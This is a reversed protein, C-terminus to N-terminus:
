NKRFNAENQFSLKQLYVRDIMLQISWSVAISAVVIKSFNLARSTSVLIRRIPQALGGEPFVKEKLLHHFFSPQAGVRNEKDEQAETTQTDSTEEQAEQTEQVDSSHPHIPAIYSDGTFYVGRLFFSDYFATTKFLTDCMTQIGSSLKMFHKPFVFAAERDDQDRAITRAYLTARARRLASLMTTFMEEGWVPVYNKETGYPSSWGFIESLNEESLEQSLASFGPILDTKTIIVYVPLRIALAAQMTSLRESLAKAREVCKEMSLNLLESTSITLLIGDLPRQPRFRNLANLFHGWQSQQFKTTNRELVFKGALDIVIGQDFFWWDLKAGEGKLDYIPRGIPLDLPTTHLLTSKGSGEAGMM